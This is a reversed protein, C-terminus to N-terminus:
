ILVEKNRAQVTSTNQKTEVNKNWKDYAMKFNKYKYGKMICSTKFDDFAIGNSAEIHKELEQKYEASLNEYQTLNKLTFSFAKEKEEEKEQGKYNNTLPNTLPKALPAFVDDYALSKKDCYGKVSSQISHKVSKWLIKLMADEFVVEDIHKTFFMVEYIAMNFDYFQKQSLERSVEYFSYYYNIAKKDIIM